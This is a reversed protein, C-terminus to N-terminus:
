DGNGTCSSNTNGEYHGNNTLVTQANLCSVEGFVSWGGSGTSYYVTDRPYTEPTYITTKNYFYAQVETNMSISNDFMILINPEVGAGSATYLDTDHAFSTGIFLLLLFPIILLFSKILKIKLLRKM